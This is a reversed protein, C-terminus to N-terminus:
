QTKRFTLYSSLIILGASLVLQLTIQEGFLPVATIAAALPSLYTSVSVAFPSALRISWQLLFFFLISNLFALSMLSGLGAASVGSYAGLIDIRLLLLVALSIVTIVANNVVIVGLPHYKVSLKKSVIVYLSWSFVAGLIILNGHATGLSKIVDTGNNRSVLIIGGIIGAVISIIHKSRIRSQFILASLIIVITPTLLYM